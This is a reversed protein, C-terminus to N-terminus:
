VIEGKNNKELQSKKVEFGTEKAYSEVQREASDWDEFLDEVELGFMSCNEKRESEFGKQLENIDEIEEENSSYKLFTINIYM